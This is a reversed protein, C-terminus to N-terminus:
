CAIRIQKTVSEPRGNVSSAYPRRLFNSVPKVRAVLDLSRIRPNRLAAPTNQMQDPKRTKELAPMCDPRVGNSKVASRNRTVPARIRGNAMAQHGCWRGSCALRDIDIKPGPASYLTKIYKPKFSEDAAYPPTNALPENGIKVMKSPKKKARRTGGQRCSMATRMRTAPATSIPTGPRLV